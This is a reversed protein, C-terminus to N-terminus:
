IAGISDRPFLNGNPLGMVSHRGSHQMARRATRNLKRYSVGRSDIFGDHELQIQMPGGMTEWMAESNNEAQDAEEKDRIRDCIKIREHLDVSMIYRLKELLRGDLNDKTVRMILRDMDPCHEMLAYGFKEAERSTRLLELLYLNPSIEKVRECIMWMDHTVLSAKTIIPIGNEDLQYPVLHLNTPRAGSPLLITSAM